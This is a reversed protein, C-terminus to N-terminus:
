LQLYTAYLVVAERGAVVWHTNNVTVQLILSREIMHSTVVIIWVCAQLVLITALGVTHASTSIHATRSVVAEATPEWNEIVQVRALAITLVVEQVQTNWAAGRNTIGQLM